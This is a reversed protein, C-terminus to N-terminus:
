PARAHRAPQHWRRRPARLAARQSRARRAGRGADTGARRAGGALADIRTAVRSCNTRSRPNSRARCASAAAPPTCRNWTIASCRACSRTRPRRAASPWPVNPMPSAHASTSSRSVASRPPSRTACNKSSRRRRRCSSPRTFPRPRRRRRRRSSRTLSPCAGANRAHREPGRSSTPNPPVCRPFPRADVEPLAAALAAPAPAAWTDTNAIPDNLTSEYAAVDLVPLEATAETDVDSSSAVTKVPPM